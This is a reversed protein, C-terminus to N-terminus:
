GATALQRSVERAASRVPGILASPRASGVRAVVSISAAVSGDVDFVPAAVSAADDTVQRDSIAYGRRRVDALKRRIQEPHTVTESTFRPLPDALVRDQVEVPAHALLVLGVGTPPMPFRGGLRTRVSVSRRGAIREVFLVEHGQRVALQVNEGTAEYLEEMFPLALERLAPGRPALAAIEFLGLGIRYRRDRTRELIGHDVMEGVLRHVTSTALGSYRALDSVGLESRRSSFTSLLTIAKGLVGTSEARGTAPSRHATEAPIM